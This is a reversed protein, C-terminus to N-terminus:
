VEVEEPYVWKALDTVLVFIPLALLLNLLASPLTIYTISEQFPIPDGTVFLFLINLIHTVFTGLVTATIMTLIPVQWIRRQILRTFGFVLIYGILPAYAPMASVYSVMLGGVLTWVLANKVKKQLSWAVIVLLVLDATGSLLPLRSFIVSQLM